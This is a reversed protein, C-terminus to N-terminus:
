QLPSSVNVYQVYSWLFIRFLMAQGASLVFIIGTHLVPLLGHGAYCGQYLYLTGGDTAQFIWPM